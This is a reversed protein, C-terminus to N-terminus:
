ERFSTDISLAASSNGWVRTYPVGSMMEPSAPDIKKWEEGDRLVLEDVGIEVDVLCVSVEDTLLNKMAYSRFM